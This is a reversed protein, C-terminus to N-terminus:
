IPFRHNLAECHLTKIEQPAKRPFSAAVVGMSTTCSGPHGEGFFIPPPKWNESLSGKRKPTGLGWFKTSPDYFVWRGFLQVFSGPGQMEQVFVRRTLRCHRWTNITGTSIGTCQEIGRAFDIQLNSAGRSHWSIVLTSWPWGVERFKNEWWFNPNSLPFGLPLYAKLLAKSEPPFMLPSLKVLSYINHCITVSPLFLWTVEWHSAIVWDNHDPISHVYSYHLLKSELQVWCIYSTEQDLWRVSPCSKGDFHHPCVIAIQCSM